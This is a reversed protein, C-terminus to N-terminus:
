AVYHACAHIHDIDRAIPLLHPPRVALHKARDPRRGRHDLHPREDIRLHKYLNLGVRHNTRTPLALYLTVCQRTLEHKINLASHDDRTDEAHENRAGPGINLRDAPLRALCILDAPSHPCFGHWACCSRLRM